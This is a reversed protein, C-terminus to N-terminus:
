PHTLPFFVQTISLLYPVEIRRTFGTVRLAFAVAFAVAFGLGFVVAVVVSLSFAVTSRHLARCVERCRRHVLRQAKRHSPPVRQGRSCQCEASLEHICKGWAEHHRRDWDILRAHTRDEEARAHAWHTREEEGSIRGVKQAKHPRCDAKGQVGTDCSSLERRASRPPM